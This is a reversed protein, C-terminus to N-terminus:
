LQFSKTDIFGGKKIFVLEVLWLVPAAFPRNLDTIDFLRYGNEDMYTIVKLIDNDVAKCVVGAEVMFIETVGFYSRAGELVDLDLGEADIKIMEPPLLGTTPLFESLTVVPVKIQRLGLRKVEADPYAFSSSDDRPAITFKLTGAARGAGVAHFTVKSEPTLLDLISNRMTEQPELLTFNAGPFYQLVERTWTGHNAGVDVIHTAKFGITKLVTFFRELLENKESHVKRSFGLRGMLPSLVKIAIDKFFQKL